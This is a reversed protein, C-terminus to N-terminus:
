NSDEAGESVFALVRSNADLGIATAQHAAIMAGAVGAAGSPTTTIGHEALCDTARTAAHDSIGLFWDAARALEGLALHSPEKCDLRGMNSAPGRAHCVRGARISDHLALAREPEVVVICPDDGWANRFVAAMAAAFGGVGAQLFVHTPPPELADVIEQAAVQYGQMVRAPLEVYGPWSSDSLLIWGNAEADAAARAMSAEYDGGPHVVEAGLAQLRRAFARPASEPLYIIAGAGFIRAGAALSLGHNGASACAYVRGDLAKAIQAPTASAVDGPLQEVAARAIVWAAGLAKFSGLGMRQSEDKLLLENIGLERALQPVHRLPTAAAAPCHALLDGPDIADPPLDCQAIDADAPLGIGRWPNALLDM